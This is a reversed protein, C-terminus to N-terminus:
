NYGFQSVAALIEAETAPKGIHGSAGQLEGMVKDVKENKSTVMIVPIAKTNADKKIARCTEYGSKGPMVVDLFILDPKEKNAAEIGTTGDHAEIISYGKNSLITKLSDRDTASDDVILIKLSM